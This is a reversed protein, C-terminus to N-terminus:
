EGKEASRETAFRKEKRQSTQTRNIPNNKKRKKLSLKEYSSLLSM